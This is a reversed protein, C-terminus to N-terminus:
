LLKNSSQFEREMTALVLTPALTDLTLDLDLTALTLAPLTDQEVWVLELELPCVLAAELDATAEEM